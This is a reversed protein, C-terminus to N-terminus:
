REVGTRVELRSNGRDYVVVGRTCTDVSEASLQLLLAANCERHYVTASGVVGPVCWVQGCDPCRMLQSGYCDM